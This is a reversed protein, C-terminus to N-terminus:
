ILAGQMMGFSPIPSATGTESTFTRTSTSRSSQLYVIVDSAELVVPWDVQGVTWPMGDAAYHICYYSYLGLLSFIPRLLVM